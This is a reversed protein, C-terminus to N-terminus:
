YDGGAYGEDSYCDRVQLVHKVAPLESSVLAAYRCYYECEESYYMCKIKCGM